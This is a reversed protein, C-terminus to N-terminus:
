VHSPRRRGRCRPYLSGLVGVRGPSAQVARAGAPWFPGVGEFLAGVNYGGGGGGRVCWTCVCAACACVREVGVAGVAGVCVQCDETSGCSVNAVRTAGPMPCSAQNIALIETNFLAEQMISTLNRPDTAFLLVSRVMNWMTFETQRPPCLGVCHLAVGHLATCCVCFFLGVLFVSCCIVIVTCGLAPAPCPPEACPRTRVRYEIDTQGPCHLQGPGCPPARLLLLLLVTCHM